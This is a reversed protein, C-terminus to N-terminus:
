AVPKSHEESRGTKVQRKHRILRTRWVGSPLSLANGQSSHPALGIMPRWSILIANPDTVPSPFQVRESGWNGTRESGVRKPMFKPFQFVEPPINIVKIIVDIVTCIHTCMGVRTVAWTWLFSPCKANQDEALHLDRTPADQPPLHYINDRDGLFM